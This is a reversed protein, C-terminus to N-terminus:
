LALTSTDFIYRSAYAPQDCLYISAIQVNYKALSITVCHEHAPGIIELKTLVKRAVNIDIVEIVVAILTTETVTENVFLSLSPGGALNWTNLPPESVMPNPDLVSKFKAVAADM